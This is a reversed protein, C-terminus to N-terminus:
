RMGEAEKSIFHQELNRCVANVVGPNRCEALAQMIQWSLEQYKASLDDAKTFVQELLGKDQAHFAQALHRHGIISALLYINCGAKIENINEM